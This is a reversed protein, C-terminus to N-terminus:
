GWGGLAKTEWQRQNGSQCQEHHTQLICGKMWQCPRVLPCLARTRTPATVVLRGAKSHLKKWKGGSLWGARGGFTPLTARRYASKSISKLMLSWARRGVGGFVCLCSILVCVRGNDPRKQSKLIVCVCAWSPLHLRSWAHICCLLSCPTYFVYIDM